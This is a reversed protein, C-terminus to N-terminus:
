ALNLMAMDEPDAVTNCELGFRIFHIANAARGMDGEFASPFRSAAAEGEELAVLVARLAQQEPENWQDNHEDM